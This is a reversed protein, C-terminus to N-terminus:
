QMEQICPVVFASLHSFPLIPFHLLPLLSSPLCFHFLPLLKSLSTPPNLSLFLNPSPNSLAPPLSFIEPWQWFCSNVSGLHGPLLEWQSLLSLFLSIILSPERSLRKWNPRVKNFMQEAKLILYLQWQSTKISNWSRTAKKREEKRKTTSRKTLIFFTQISNMENKQAMAVDHLLQLSLSVCPTQWLSSTPATHRGKLRVSHCCVPPDCRRCRSLDHRANKSM